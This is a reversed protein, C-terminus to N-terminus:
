HRAPTRILITASVMKMASDTGTMFLSFKSGNRGGSPVKAADAHQARRGRDEEGVDAEVRYRGSGLFGLVRLAVHGIPRIPLRTIQM